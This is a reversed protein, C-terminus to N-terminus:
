KRRERLSPASRPDHRTDYGNNTGEMRAMFLRDHPPVTSALSRELENFDRHTVKTNLLFMALAAGCLEAVRSLTLNHAYSVVVGSM